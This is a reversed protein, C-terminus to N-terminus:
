RPSSQTPAAKMAQDLQELFTDRDAPSIIVNLGKRRIIEVATRTSTALRIGGYIMTKSGPAAKADAINQFPINVALPGGLVIKLSDSFIQLRQPLIAKFLLADFLTVGFMVLAAALEESLLVIGLVLTFALISGLILKLWFDYKSVTEYVLM